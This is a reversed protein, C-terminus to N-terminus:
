CANEKKIANFYRRMNAQFNKDVPDRKQYKNFRELCQRYLDSDPDALMNEFQLDDAQKRIEAVRKAEELEAEAQIEAPSKYGSPRAYEGNMLARTIYSRKDKIPNGDADTEVAKHNLAWEARHLSGRLRGIDLNESKWEAVIKNLQQRGFGLECLLPYKNKLASSLNNLLLDDDDIFSLTQSPTQSVTQSNSLSNSHKDSHRLYKEAQKDRVSVKIGQFMGDRFRKPKNIIGHRHLASISGRVTGYPIGCESAMIKLSLVGDHQESIYKLVMQQTDSLILPSHKASHEICHSDSHEVTQKSTQTVTQENTQGSTRKLTQKHTQKLTQKNAQSGTQTDAKSPLGKQDLPVVNSIIKALEASEDLEKDRGAQKGKEKLLDGWKKRAM